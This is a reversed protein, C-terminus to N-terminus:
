MSGDKPPSTQAGINNLPISSDTTYRTINTTSGKIFQMLDAVDIWAYLPETSRRYNKRIFDHLDEVSVVRKEVYEQKESDTIPSVDSGDKMTILKDDRTLAVLPVQSNSDGGYGQAM